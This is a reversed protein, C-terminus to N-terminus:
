AKSAGQSNKGAPMNFARDLAEQVAETVQEYDTPMLLRGIDHLTLAEHYTRAAAWLLIRLMSISINELDTVDEIGGEVLPELEALANTDFILTLKAGHLDLEVARDKLGELM